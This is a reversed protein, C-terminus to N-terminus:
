CSRDVRVFRGGGVRAITGHLELEFLRPLLRATTLGSREAIEDLDCAEGVPLSALVPDHPTAYPPRPESPRGPRGGDVVGDAPAHTVPQRRADADPGGDRGVGFVAELV